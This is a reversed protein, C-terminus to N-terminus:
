YSWSERILHHVEEHELWWNEFQFLQKKLVDEESDILILAHYTTPHPISQAWVKPFRREWTNSILTKDLRALSPRTRM